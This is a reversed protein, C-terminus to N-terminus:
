GNIYRSLARYSTCFNARPADLIDDEISPQRALHQCALWHYKDKENIEGRRAREDCESGWYKQRAMHNNWAGEYRADPGEGSMVKEQVFFYRANYREKCMSSNNIVSRSRYCTQKRTETLVIRGEKVDHMKIRFTSRKVDYAHLLYPITFIGKPVGSKHNNKYRGSLNDKGVGHASVLRPDKFDAGIASQMAEIAVIQYQYDGMIRSWLADKGPPLLNHTALLAKLWGCKENRRKEMGYKLWGIVVNRFTQKLMVSTSQSSLTM